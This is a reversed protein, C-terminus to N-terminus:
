ELTITFTVDYTTNGNLPTIHTPTASSSTTKHYDTLTGDAAIICYDIVCTISLDAQPILYLYSPADGMCLLNTSTAAKTTADTADYNVHDMGAPQWQYPLDPIYRIAETIIGYSATNTEPDNDIFVIRASSPDANTPLAQDFWTPIRKGSGNTTTGTLDLKGTKAFNGTLTVRKVLLRSTAPLKTNDEGNTIGLSLSVRALAHNMTLPIARSPRPRLTGDADKLIDSTETVTYNGWLLDVHEEPHKARAYLIYPGSENNPSMGVIGTTGSALTGPTPVYPAYGYICVGVPDAPWYKLPSYTWYGNASGDAFFTYEVEQNYMINPASGSTQAMFVGFGTYRLQHNEKTINGTYGNAARTSNNDIACDFAIAITKESDPLIDTEEKQTCGTLLLACM